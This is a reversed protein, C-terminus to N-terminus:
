DKEKLIRCFLGNKAVLEDYTGKEAVRGNELVAISDFNRVTNLRHAVMIVTCTGMIDDLIELVKQENKSDLASTPEDLVLIRPDRLLARAISIRQSQGGSLNSGSESIPSDLGEPLSNM